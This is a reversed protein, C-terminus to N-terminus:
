IKTCKDAVPTRIEGNQQKNIMNNYLRVCAHLIHYWREAYQYSKTPLKEIINSSLYTWFRTPLSSKHRSISHQTIPHHRCYWSWRGSRQSPEMWLARDYRYLRSGLHRRDKCILCSVSMHSLCLLQRPNRTRCHGTIVRFSFKPTFLTCVMSKQSGRGMHLIILWTTANTVNEQIHYSMHKRKSRKRYTTYSMHKRKNWKRYTTYSVHKHKNWKRYTTYSM